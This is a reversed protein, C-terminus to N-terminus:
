DIFSTLVFRNLLLGAFEFLFFVNLLFSVCPSQFLLLRYMLFLFLLVPRFEFSPRYPVLQPPTYVLLLHAYIYTHQYVLSHSHTNPATKVGKVALLVPVPDIM